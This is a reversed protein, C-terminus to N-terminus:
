SAVRADPDLMVEDFSRSTSCRCSGSTTTRVCRATTSGSSAAAFRSTRSGAGTTRSTRPSTTSRTTRTRRFARRRVRVDQGEGPLDPQGLHRHRRAVLGARQRERAGRRQHRRPVAGITLQVSAPAAPSFGFSVQPFQGRFNYPNVNNRQWSGGMQLEHRGLLWSANDNLQYTNTYRGQDQFGVGGAEATNGAIPNIISLARTTRPHRGLLGLRHHVAGPALNAGGRIENQFSSTAM